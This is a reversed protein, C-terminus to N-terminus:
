VLGGRRNAIGLYMMVINVMGAMRSPTKLDWLFSPKFAVADIPGMLAANYAEDPIVRETVRLLEQLESVRLIVNTGRHAAKFARGRLKELAPQAEKTWRYTEM